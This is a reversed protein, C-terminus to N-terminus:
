HQKTVKFSILKKNKFQSVAEFVKGKKTKLTLDIITKVDKLIKYKALDKKKVFIPKGENKELPIQKNPIKASVVFMLVPHDKFGYVSIIGKLTINKLKTIGTEEKVERIVTQSFTEKPEVHGAPPNVYGYILSDNKNHQLMLIEDKNNLLIMYVKLEQNAYNITM